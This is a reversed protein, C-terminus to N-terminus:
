AVLLEQPIRKTGVWVSKQLIELGLGALVERIWARKKREREPIDFAVIVLGFGGEKKYIPIPIGGRHRRSKRYGELKKIGRKTIVWPM